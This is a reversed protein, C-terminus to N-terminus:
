AGAKASTGGADQAAICHRAYAIAGKRSPKTRAVYLQQRTMLNHSQFDEWILPNGAEKFERKLEMVRQQRLRRAVERDGTKIRFTTSGNRKKSPISRRDHNSRIRSIGFDGPEISLPPEVAAGFGGGFMGAGAALISAAFMGFRSYGVM